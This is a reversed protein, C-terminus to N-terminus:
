MVIGWGTGATAAFAKNSDMIVHAAGGAGDGRPILGRVRSIAARCIGALEEMPANPDGALSHSRSLDNFAFLALSKSLSPM